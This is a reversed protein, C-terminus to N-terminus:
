HLNDYDAKPLVVMQAILYNTSPLTRDTPHSAEKSRSTHNTIILSHALVM